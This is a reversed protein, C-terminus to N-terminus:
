APDRQQQWIDINSGQTHSNIRHLRTLPRAMSDPDWFGIMFRSFVVLYRVNASREEFFVPFASSNIIRVMMFFRGELVEHWCLIRLQHCLRRAVACYMTSRRVLLLQCHWPEIGLCSVGPGDVSEGFASFLSKAVKRKQLCLCMLVCFGVLSMHAWVFSRESM